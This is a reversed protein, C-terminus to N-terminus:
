HKSKLLYFFLTQSTKNNVQQITNQDRPTIADAGIGSDPSPLDVTLGAATVTKTYVPTSKTTHTTFRGEYASQPPPPPPADDGYISRTPVYAQGGAGDGGAFYERYYPESIFTSSGARNRLFFFGNLRNTLRFRYTM